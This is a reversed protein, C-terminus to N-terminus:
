LNVEYSPYSGVVDVIKMGKQGGDLAKRNWMRLFHDHEACFPVSNILFPKKLCKRNGNLLIAPFL